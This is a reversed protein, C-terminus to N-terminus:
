ACLRAKITVLCNSQGADTHRAEVNRVEL